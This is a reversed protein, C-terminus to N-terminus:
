FRNFVFTYVSFSGTVFLLIVEICALGFFIASFVDKKEPFDNLYILMIVKIAFLMYILATGRVDVPIAALVALSVLLNGAQFWVLKNRTSSKM